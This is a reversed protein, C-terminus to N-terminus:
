PGQLDELHYVNRSRNCRKKMRRYCKASAYLASGLPRGRTAPIMEGCGCACAKPAPVYRTPEPPLWGADRHLEDEAKAILIAFGFRIGAEADSM